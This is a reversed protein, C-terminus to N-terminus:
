IKTTRQGILEYNQANFLPCLDYSVDIAVAQIQDKPDSPHESTRHHFHDHLLVCPFIYRDTKIEKPEYPDMVVRFGTVTIPEKFPDDIVM